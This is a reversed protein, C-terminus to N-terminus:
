VLEFRDHYKHSLGDGLLYEGAMAPFLTACAVNNHCWYVARHNVVYRSRQSNIYEPFHITFSDKIWFFDDHEKVVLDGSVGDSCGFDV